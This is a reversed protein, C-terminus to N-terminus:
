YPIIECSKSCYEVSFTKPILSCKNKIDTLIAIGNRTRIVPLCVGLRSLSSAQFSKHVQTAVLVLVLVALKDFFVGDSRPHMQINDSWAVDRRDKGGGSGNRNLILESKIVLNEWTLASTLKITQMQQSLESCSIRSIFSALANVQKNITAELLRYQFM